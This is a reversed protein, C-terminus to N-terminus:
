HDHDDAHAKFNLTAYKTFLVYPRMNTQIMTQMTDLDQDMFKARNMIGANNIVISYRRKELLAKIHEPSATSVDMPCIDTEVNLGRAVAELKSETRSVLAIKFGQAALQKAYEAGIGESAGTILAWEGNGYLNPLRSHKDEQESNYYHEALHYFGKGVQYAGLWYVLSKIRGM